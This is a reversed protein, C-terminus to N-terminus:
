APRLSPAPSPGTSAATPRPTRGSDPRDGSGGRPAVWRPCATATRAPWARRACAPLARAIDATCQPPCPAPCPGWTTIVALLDNVDVAGGGGGGGIINGPCPEAITLTATTSTVEGAANTVVVDYEGEDNGDVNFLTLHPLDVGTQTANNDLPVGDRRWRYDLEGGDATVDFTVNAAPPSSQNGPPSVISPAELASKAAISAPSGARM